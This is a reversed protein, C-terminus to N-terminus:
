ARAFEESPLYERYNRHAYSFPPQGELNNWRSNLNNGDLYVVRDADEGMVLKWIVRAKAVGFYRINQYTITGRPNTFKGMSTLALRGAHARNFSKWSGQSRFHHEPRVKWRLDGTDPNYDFCEQLFEQSPLAKM